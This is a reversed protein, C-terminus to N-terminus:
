YKAFDNNETFLKDNKHSIDITLANQRYTKNSLQAITWETRMCYAIGFM